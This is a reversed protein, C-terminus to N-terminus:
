RMQQPTRPGFSNRIMLPQPEHPQAPEEAGSDDQSSFPNAPSSLASGNPLASLVIRLPATRDQGGIIMVNYGSGDLLQSLVDRVQGPGYSGFIREDTSLGQVKAGTVASVDNLIQKLSSNDAQISLGHSNLVVSAPQPPNNVPWDPLKPQAPVQPLPAAPHAAQAPLASHRAARARRPPHVPRHAPVSVRHTPLRQPAPIAALIAQTGFLIVFAALAALLSLMERRSRRRSSFSLWFRPQPDMETRM